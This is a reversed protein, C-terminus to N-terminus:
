SSNTNGFSWQLAVKFPHWLSALWWPWWWVKDSSLSCKQHGPIALWICFDMLFQTCQRCCSPLNGLTGKCGITTVEGNSRRCTSKVLLSIVVSSLWSDLTVLMRTNWSWKVFCMITYLGGVMCSFCDGLKQILTVDWDKPGRGPEQTVPTSVKHAANNFFQTCEKAHLLQLGHWVVRLHIPQHLSWM